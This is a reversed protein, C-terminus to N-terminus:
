LFVVLQVGIEVHEVIQLDLVVYRCIRLGTSVRSAADGAGLSYCRLLFRHQASVLDRATQCGKQQQCRKEGLIQEGLVLMRLIRVALPVVELVLAMGAGIFGTPRGILGAMGSIPEAAIFIQGGGLLAASEFVIGLKAPKWGLLLPLQLIAQLMEGAQRRLLLLAHEAAHLGPLMQRGSLLLLRVLEKLLEALQRRVAALGDIAGDAAHAAQVWRLAIPEDIRFPVM